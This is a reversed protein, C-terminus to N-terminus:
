KVKFKFTVYKALIGSSSIYIYATEGANLYVTAKRTTPFDPSNKMKKTAFFMAYSAGTPANSSPEMNDFVNPREDNRKYVTFHGNAYKGNSAHLNSLTFTYSKSTPATFKLYTRGEYGKKKLKFNYTKRALTTAVSDAYNPDSNVERFSKLTKTKAEVTLPSVFSFTLVFAMVMALAKIIGGFVKSDKKM